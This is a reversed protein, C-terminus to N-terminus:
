QKKKNIFINILSDLETNGEMYILTASESCKKRFLIFRNPGDKKDPPLQYYCALTKNGSKIIESNSANRGDALVAKEFKLVDDQSDQISVSYFIDLHYPKLKKGKLYIVVAQEKDNYEGSFVPEINLGKQAYISNWSLLLLFTLISLIRKM